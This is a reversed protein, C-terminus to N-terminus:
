EATMASMDMEEFSDLEAPFDITVDGIEINSLDVVCNVTIGNSQASFTIFYAEINKDDDLTVVFEMDSLGDMEVAQQGTSGVMSSISDKMKSGDLTFHLVNGDVSQEKVADEPVSFNGTNAQKVAEEVSMAGKYQMGMTDMYYMGDRYWAKMPIADDGIGLQALEEMELKMAMDMSFELEEESKMIQKFNGAMSITAPQEETAEMVIDMDLSYAEADALKESAEMFMSYADDAGGGGGGCASLLIMMCAMLCFLVKKKM